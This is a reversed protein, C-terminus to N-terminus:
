TPFGCAPEKEIDIRVGAITMPHGRYRHDLVLMFREADKEWTDAQEKSVSLSIPNGGKCRVAHILAIFESLSLLGTM